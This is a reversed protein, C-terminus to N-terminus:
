PAGFWIWPPVRVCTLIHTRQWLSVFPVFPCASAFSKKWRIWMPLYRGLTAFPVYTPYSPSQDVTPQGPFLLRAGYSQVVQWSVLAGSFSTQYVRGLRFPQPEQWSSTFKVVPTPWLPAIRGCSSSLSHAFHWWGWPSRSNSAEIRPACVMGSFEVWSLPRTAVMTEAVLM